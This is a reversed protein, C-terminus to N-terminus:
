GTGAPQSSASAKAVLAILPKGRAFTETSAPCTSIVVMAFLAASLAVISASNFRLAGGEKRRESLM